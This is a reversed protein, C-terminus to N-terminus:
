ASRTTPMRGVAQASLTPAFAGAGQVRGLDPVSDMARELEDVEGTPGGRPSSVSTREHYGGDRIRLEGM